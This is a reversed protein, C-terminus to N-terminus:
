YFDDFTSFRANTIRNALEAAKLEVLLSAVQKVVENVSDDKHARMEIQADLDREQMKLLDFESHLFHIEKEMQDKTFM